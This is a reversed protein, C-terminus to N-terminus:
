CPAIFSNDTMNVVGALFVFKVFGHHWEGEICDVEFSFENVGLFYSFEDFLLVPTASQDTLNPFNKLSNLWGIAIASKM